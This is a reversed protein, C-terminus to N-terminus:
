TSLGSGSAAGEKSAKVQKLVWTLGYIVAIVIALGVIMRAIGGGGGTTTAAEKAPDSQPLHLPTRDEKATLAAAAPSALVLTTLYASAAYAFHAPSPKM